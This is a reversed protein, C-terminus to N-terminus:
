LHPKSSKKYVEKFVRFFNNGLIGQINDDSYGRTILGRTFNTLKTIDDVGDAYPIGVDDLPQGPGAVRRSSIIMDECYDTYDPGIGICGPGVLHAIHGVHDLVDSLSPHESAVFRGM